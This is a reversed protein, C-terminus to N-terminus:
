SIQIIIVKQNKETRKTKKERKKLTRKSDKQYKKTTIQCIHCNKLLKQSNKATKAVKQCKKKSKRIKQLTNKWHNELPESKSVKPGNPGGLTCTQAIKHGLPISISPNQGGNQDSKPSPQFLSFRAPAQVGAWNQPDSPTPIAIMKCVKQWVAEWLGESICKQRNKSASGHFVM